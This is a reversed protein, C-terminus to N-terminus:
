SCDGCLTRPRITFLHLCAPSPHDDECCLSSMEQHHRHHLHCHCHHHHHHLLRHSGTLRGGKEGDHTFRQRQDIFLLMFMIMMMMLLLLLLLLLFGANHNSRGSRGGGERNRERDLFINEIIIMKIKIVVLISILSVKEHNIIDPNLNKLNTM